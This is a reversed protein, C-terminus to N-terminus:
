REACGPRLRKAKSRAAGWLSRGWGGLGRCLVSHALTHVARGSAAPDGEQVTMLEEGAPLETATTHVTM